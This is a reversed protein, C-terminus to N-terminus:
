AESDNIKDSLSILLYLLVSIGAFTFLYPNTQVALGYSLGTALWLFLRILDRKRLVSVARGSVFLIFLVWVGLGLIGIKLMLAPLTSEYM